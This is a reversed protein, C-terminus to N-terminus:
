QQFSDPAQPRFKTRTLVNKNGPVSSQRRYMAGYLRRVETTKPHNNGFLEQYLLIAKKFDAKAEKWKYQVSDNVGQSALVEGYEPTKTRGNNELIKRARSLLLRAKDSQKLWAFATGTTTLTPVLEISTPGYLVERRSTVPGGIQIARKYDRLMLYLRSKAELVDLVAPSDGGLRKAEIKWAHNLLPEVGSTVGQNLHAIALTATARAIWPSTEAVTRALIEYGKTACAVSKSYNELELYYVALKVLTNGIIASAPELKSQQIKHAEELTAAAAKYDAKDALEEAKVELFAAKSLADSATLKEELSDREKSFRYLISAYRPDKLAFKEFSGFIQAAEKLSSEGEKIKGETENLLSKTALIKAKLLEKSSSVPSAELRFESPEDALSKVMYLAENLLEGAQNLEGQTVLMRANINLLETELYPLSGGVSLDRVTSMGQKVIYGAEKYQGGEDLVDSLLFLIRAKRAIEKKDDEKPKCMGQAFKLTREAKYMDGLQRQAISLRELVELLQPIHEKGRLETVMKELTARAEEFSGDKLQQDVAELKVDIAANSKNDSESAATEAEKSEQANATPSYLFSYLSGAMAIATLSCFVKLNKRTM